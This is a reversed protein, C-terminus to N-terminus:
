PTLTSLVADYHQLYLVRQQQAGERNGLFEYERALQRHVLFDDPKIRVMTEFTEAADRHLQLQSQVLGLKWHFTALLPYTHTGERLLEIAKEPQKQSLLWSTTRDLEAIADQRVEAKKVDNAREQYEELAHRGEEHGDRILAMARNYRATQLGPDIALAKDAQLAAERYHGLSLQVQALGDYASANGPNAALVRNFEQGAEDLRNQRVLVSALLLRSMANSPDLELATKLARVADDFRVLFFNMEGIRGYIKGRQARDVASDSVTGSPIADEFIGIAKEYKGWSVYVEGLEYRLQRSDPNLRVARQMLSEAEPLLRAMMLKDRMAHFASSRPRSQSLSRWFADLAKEFRLDRAHVLSLVEAFNELVEAATVGDWGPTGWRVALIRRYVMEAEAYKGGVRAISALNILSPILAEHANGLSRELIALSQRACPEADAYNQQYRYIQSLGNLSEALRIDEKGLKGAQNVAALFLSAAEPFRGEQLATVAGDHQTRWRDEAETTRKLLVFGNGVRTVSSVEGAKIGRLAARYEQRLASEEVMGMYGARSATSDVSYTVALVEFSTGERIRSRLDEADREMPVVIVSLGIHATQPHASVVAALCCSLILPSSLKFRM